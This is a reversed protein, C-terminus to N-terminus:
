FGFGTVKSIQDLLETLKPNEEFLDLVKNIEFLRDQLHDREAHLRELMSAPRVIGAVNVASPQNGYSM